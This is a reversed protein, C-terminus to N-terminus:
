LWVGLCGDIQRDIWVLNSKHPNYVPNQLVGSPRPVLWSWSVRDEVHKQFALSLNVVLVAYKHLNRLFPPVVEARGKSREYLTQNSLTNRRPAAYDSLSAGGGRDVNEDAITLLSPM